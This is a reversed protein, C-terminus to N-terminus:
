TPIDNVKCTNIELGLRYSYCYKDAYKLYIQMLIHHRVKDVENSIINGLYWKDLYLNVEIEVGVQGRSRRNRGYM